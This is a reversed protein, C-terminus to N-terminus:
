KVIKVVKGKSKERKVKQFWKKTIKDSLKKDSRKNFYWRSTGIYRDVVKTKLM